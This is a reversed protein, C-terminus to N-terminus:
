EILIFGSWDAPEYGAEKLQMKANRLAKASTLKKNILFDYFSTM